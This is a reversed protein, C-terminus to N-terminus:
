TKRKRNLKMISYKMQYLITLEKEKEIENNNILNSFEFSDRVAQNPNIVYNMNKNPQNILKNVDPRVRFGMINNNINEM